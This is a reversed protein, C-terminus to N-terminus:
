ISYEVFCLACWVLRVIRNFTSKSNLDLTSAPIPKRPISHIYTHMYPRPNTQKRGRWSNCCSFRSNWIAATSTTTAALSLESVFAYKSVCGGFHSRSCKGSQFTRWELVTETEAFSEICAMFWFLNDNEHLIWTMNVMNLRIQSTTKEWPYCNGDWFSCRWVYKAKFNWILNHLESGLSLKFVM